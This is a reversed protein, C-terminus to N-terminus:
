MVEVVASEKYSRKFKLKGKASLSITIKVGFVNVSITEIKGNLVAEGAAILLTEADSDFAYLKKECYKAFDGVADRIKKKNAEKEQEKKVQEQYDRAMECDCNMKAYHVAEEYSNLKKDAIISKGCFQCRPIYLDNEINEKM